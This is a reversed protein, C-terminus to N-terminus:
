HAALANVLALLSIKSLKAPRTTEAEADTLEVGYAAQLARQIGRHKRSLSGSLALMREHSVRLRRVSSGGGPGRYRNLQSM